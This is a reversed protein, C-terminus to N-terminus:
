VVPVWVAYLITGEPAENVNQATYDATTSGAETSWGYFLHGDRTPASIGNKAEPNEITDESIVVSVVYSKDDSLTVNWFVPRFSSNFHVSWYPRVSESECYLTTEKLGYFAHKGIEVISDPLVISRASTCGRFAYDGITELSTPLSIRELATCGYFAYRGIHKVEKFDFNKLATCGRFTYNGITELKDSINVTELAECKYFLYDGLSTLGSGITVTHLKQCKHFVRIGLHTVSDPITIERLSNCGQFARDGISLIGEGLKIYGTVTVEEIIPNGLEDKKGTDQKFPVSLGVAKCGYFAFPGITKVTGPVDISLVNECKYFASRGIYETGEPIVLDFYSGGFNAYTCGYFAYDGIYKLSKSLKISGATSGYFAGRGIYLLSDPLVVGMLTQKQFAYNAIGRTGEQIFASNMIATGAGLDDGIYDVVWNGMYLIGKRATKELRNYAASARFAYSGISTLSDPLTITELRECSRFAADGITKLSNGLTVSSLYTCNSFAYGGIELLADDFSIRYLSTIQYFAAYDVYKVGKCTVQVLKPNAYFAYSAIGYINSDIILNETETDFYQILWGDIVLMDTTKAEEFIKSEVLVSTGVYKLGTGFSIDDLAICSVFVGNGIREVSDPVRVGNLSSCMYFTYDPLVSLSTGLDIKTLKKCKSFTNMGITKVGKGLSFTDLSYCESFVFNGLTKTSDPLISAYVSHDAGRYTLKTLSECNAFAYDAISQVNRGLTVTELASCWDFINNPISTISDPLTASKLAKCSQFAYAGISTVCEPIVISKLKTCKAFAKEGIKKVNSGITISTVRTNGYLAKAAISTVPKGRYVSEMVIDGEASGIAILEFETDNNILQYKLGSEVERKFQFTAPTSDKFVENDSKATIKIEYDGPELYELSIFNNKTTLTKEEGSIEVSYFKAGKVMNWRLTQTAVDLNVGSPKNLKNNQCSSFALVCLMLLTVFILSIYSKKM